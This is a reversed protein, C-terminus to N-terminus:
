LGHWDLAFRVCARRGLEIAFDACREIMVEALEPVADIDIM